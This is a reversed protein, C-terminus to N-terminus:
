ADDNLSIHSNRRSHHTFRVRFLYGTKIATGISKDRGESM